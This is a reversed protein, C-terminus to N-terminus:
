RFSSEAHPLSTLGPIYTTTLQGNPINIMEDEDTIPSYDLGGDIRLIVV